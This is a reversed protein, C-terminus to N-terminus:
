HFTYGMRIALDRLSLWAQGSDIGPQRYFESLLNFIEQVTIDGRLLAERLAQGNGRQAQLYPHDRTLVFEDWLRHIQQHMHQDLYALAQRIQHGAADQAAQVLRPIGTAEMARLFMRFFPHHRDVPIRNIPSERSNLTRQARSASIETLEAIEETAVQSERLIGSDDGNDNHVLISNRGVSYCRLGEVEMNYVLGDYPQYVIREVAVIRGDRLLLEDGVRLDCSDVWRGPTTADDPITAIHELWPRQPLAEGRVVWYPHRYTSEITEGAATVFVSTGVVHRQFPQVVACLQWTSSLLDYAWVREGAHIAEIARLGDETAVLTGAPFCSKKQVPNTEKSGPTGAPESAPETPTSPEAPRPGPTPEVVEPSTPRPEPAQPKPAVPEPPAATTGVPPDGVTTGAGEPPTGSVKVPPETAAGAPAVGGVPKGRLGALRGDVWNNAKGFAAKGRRTFPLAFLALELSGAGIRQGREYPSLDHDLIQGTSPDYDGKNGGFVGTWIKTGGTIDLLGGGFAAWYSQGANLRDAAANLAGALLLPMGVLFMSTM